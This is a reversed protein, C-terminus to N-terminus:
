AGTEVPENAAAYGARLMRAERQAIPVLSPAAEDIFDLFRVIKLLFFDYPQGAPRSERHWFGVFDSLSGGAAGLARCTDPFMDPLNGGWHLIEHPLYLRRYREIGERGDASCWDVPAAEQGAVIRAYRRNDEQLQERLGADLAPLAPSECGTQEVGREARTARPRGETLPQFRRCFSAFEDAILPIPKTDVELAIGRLNVLREDRLVQELMEFLVPPIPAAHNDLWPPPDGGLDAPVDREHVALGAVHIEVVRELPFQELFSKVFSDLSGQKWSGTYRYLTWVHGIDLVLGCPALDTVLRFFTPIPITGAVFYSLPAMELLFLPSESEAESIADDLHRQIEVASRATMRAAADTYLPPLYTGFAHGAIEKTACEHNLWSSRLGRVHRVATAMEADFLERSTEPQTLWLGEGHYAFRVGPLRHRVSALAGDTAKFLEYYGPRLGRMALVDVLEYLDPVYVDVSLGLGHDPIADVRRQFDRETTWRGTM